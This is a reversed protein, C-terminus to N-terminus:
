TKPLAGIKVCVWICLNFPSPEKLVDLVVQDKIQGLHLYVRTMRNVWVNCWLFLGVLRFPSPIVAVQAFSM